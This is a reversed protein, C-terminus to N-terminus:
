LREGDFDYTFTGSREVGDSVLTVPGSLSLTLRDDGNLAGSGAFTMRLEQEGQYAICTTPLVQLSAGSANAPWDCDASVVVVDSRAGPMIQHVVVQESNQTQGDVTISWVARGQYSGGVGCGGLLVVWALGWSRM